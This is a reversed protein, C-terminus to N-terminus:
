PATTVFTVDIWYNSANWTQNPFASASGYRYVGNASTANAVAHLPANDVANTFGPETLAYNGTNTHYSVIYTTKATIAIPSPFVAQQWGSATEGTFTVTGLLTGSTTWLNGVHTGSNQSYKYFRMGTIYGSVDSTFKMGLEVANPDAALAGPTANASWISCPCAPGANSVTVSVAASTATNGSTDRAIATITHVGNVVNATNWSVSYPASTDEAGIVTGDVLLRVGAVGVNDNATASVTVTGSVTTNAGPGSISVTPAVQDGPDPPAGGGPVLGSQLSGAEVGMDSFLNVTAQQMAVDTASSISSYDHHGDLGWSYFITGASFVLAGSSHRYITMAHTVTANAYTSGYDQLKLAGSITTSSLQTLGAPRFGNNVNEDFEYGLTGVALTTTQGSTLKAVRTNRWFPQTAYTSPVKIAWKTGGSSGGNVTFLTGTLANQPKGGDYPPSFRPDMWSGTWVPQPDIKANAHTEKYCVLTRYPTNSGDISSEWRTKWFVENGSFFALNVGAGRAAEVNARQQGSWYEDHGVSLFVEHRPLETAGYRDTDVGSIYSVDYGNAELWRVMPYESTFLYDEPTTGRTTIPRNYSVKYARSPNSGPGGAYLSNGGYKNYAHWTTDSTQFVIPAQRADDRVIFPIHSAGGTSRSLRAIYIGSVATEPVAWSASVSWNGCDVLGTGSNKLCAPQSTGKVNSITAILRAGNGGYYGLRYININFTSSASSVKFSVTQGKNVSIDTAFGQLGSDGSGSVDWQSSPSGPLQNECVIPNATCGQGHLAPAPICCILAIATLALPHKWEAAM